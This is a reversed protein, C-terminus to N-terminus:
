THKYPLGGASVSMMKRIAAACEDADMRGSWHGNNTIVTNSYRDVWKECVKAAEELTANRVLQAFRTIQEPSAIPVVKYPYAATATTFGAEKAMAIIDETNM